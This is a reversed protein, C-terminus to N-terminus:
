HHGLRSGSEIHQCYETPFEMINNQYYLKTREYGTEHKTTERADEETFKLIQVLKEHTDDIKNEVNKRFVLM